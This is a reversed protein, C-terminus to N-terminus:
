TIINNNTWLQSVLTRKIHPLHYPRRFMHTRRMENQKDSKSENFEVALNNEVVVHVERIYELEEILHRLSMVNTLYQLQGTSEHLFQLLEDLIFLLTIKM